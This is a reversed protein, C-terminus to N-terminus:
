KTCLNRIGWILTDREQLWGFRLPKFCLMQQYNSVPLAPTARLEDRHTIVPTGWTAADLQSSWQPLIDVRSGKLHKISGNLHSPYSFVWLANREIYGRLSLKTSRNVHHSLARLFFFSGLRSCACYWKTVKQQDFSTILSARIWPSPFYVVGTLLFPLLFNHGDQIM